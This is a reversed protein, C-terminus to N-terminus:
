RSPSAAEIDADAIEAAKAIIENATLGHFRQKWLDEAAVVGNKEDLAAVRGRAMMFELKKSEGWGERMAGLSAEVTEQSTCDLRVDDGHDNPAIGTQRTKEADEPRAVVVALAELFEENKIGLSEGDNDSTERRLKESTGCGLLCVTLGTLILLRM